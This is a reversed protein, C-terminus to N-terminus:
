IQAYYKEENIRQFKYGDAPPPKLPAAVPKVEPETTDSHGRTRSSISDARVRKVPKKGAVVKSKKKKDDDSSDSSDDSSSDEKAIRKTGALKAKTVKKDEQESEGEESSEAKKAAKKTKKDAIVPGDEKSKLHAKFSKFVEKNNKLFCGLMAQLGGAKVIPDGAHEIKLSFYQKFSALDDEGFYTEVFDLILPWLDEAQVKM